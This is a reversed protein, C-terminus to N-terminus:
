HPEPPGGPPGFGRSEDDLVLVWDSDAGSTPPTWESTSEAPQTGAATAEGTRPDYWHAAVRGVSLLGLDVTFPAGSPSYVLAYSGDVARCVRTHQGGAGPDSRLMSDDPVREFYPRSELLARAHKMQSSAPLGLAARWHLRAGFQNPTGPTWFQFVGNAGYTHGLAGAFLSWYATKRVDHADFYGNEPKWNVPHDEYCAEGDLCPKAPMRAYDDAIMAYNEVNRVGHSSQLMNYDLWEDTHFFQASSAGGQPHFTKLGRGGDGAGLGEAMARWTRYQKDTEPNRDGGLVWIISRERYREGLYQGFSRANEPDFVVDETGWGRPGVKDGWTPLLAIYLGLADAREIVWDVHRWYAENPRKPDSDYLPVHGSRNPSTLGDFESVGVAQVVTFGKEARDLLYEDTEQENLRQFLTWATDALYFFPHGDDHM